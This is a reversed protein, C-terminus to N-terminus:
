IENNMSIYKVDLLVEACQNYEFVIFRFLITSISSRSQSYHVDVGFFSQKVDIIPCM